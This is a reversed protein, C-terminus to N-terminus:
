RSAAGSNIQRVLTEIGETEGSYFAALATDRFETAEMGAEVSM